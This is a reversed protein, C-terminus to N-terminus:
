SELNLRVKRTEWNGSIGALLASVLRLFSAEHPFLSAIRPRRNFEMTVRKPANTPRLRRQHAAPVSFVTFGQPFSEEM